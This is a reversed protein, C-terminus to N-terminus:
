CTVYHFIIYFKELFRSDQDVDYVGEEEEEMEVATINTYTYHPDVQRCTNVLALEAMIGEMKVARIPLPMAVTSKRGTFGTAHTTSSPSPSTMPSFSRWSSSGKADLYLNAVSSLSAIDSSRPCPMLHVHRFACERRYTVQMSDVFDKKKTAASSTDKTRSAKIPFPACRWSSPSSSTPNASTSFGTSPM